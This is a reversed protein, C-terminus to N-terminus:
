TPYCCTRLVVHPHQEECRKLAEEGSGAEAVVEM